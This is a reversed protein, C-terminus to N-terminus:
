WRLLAVLTVPASASKVIEVRLHRPIRDGSSTFCSPSFHRGTALTDKPDIRQGISKM